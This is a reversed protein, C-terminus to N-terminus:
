RAQFVVQRAQAGQAAFSVDGGPAAQSAGSMVHEIRPDRVVIVYVNEPRNFSPGSTAVAPSRMAENMPVFANVGQRVPAVALSLDPIAAGSGPVQALSLDGGLGAPGQQVGISSVLAGVVMVFGAAVGMPGLWTRRKLAVPQPLGAAQAQVNQRAAVAVAAASRQAAAAAPVLVVPEQALRERFNQLFANSPSAQALDDSRMVDGIFQYSHWSARADPDDKWAACARAVESAQAEGDALASLAERSAESDSFRDSM